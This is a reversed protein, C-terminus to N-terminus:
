RTASPYRGLEIQRAIDEAVESQLYPLDHSNKEYSGAWLPRGTKRQILQATIHVKDGSLQVTGAVIVDVNLERAIQPLPKNSGKYRMVAQPPVVRLERIGELDTILAATIGGAFAEQGPDSSLSQLPLVAISRFAPVPLVHQLLRDRLGFANFAILMALVGLAAVVAWALMGITSASPRAAAHAARETGPAKATQPSSVPDAIAAQEVPAIFRYGLRPLTEIFRPTEAHDGLAERLRNITSNLGHEFDVFTDKPWLRKQIEERTVLDGPRQLLMALVEIPHGQLKLKLGHRCLERTHLNLEFSEFRVHQDSRGTTEM